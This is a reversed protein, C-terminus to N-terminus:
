SFPIDDDFSDMPPPPVYAGPDKRTPRHQPAAQQVPAQYIQEGSSESRSDLMQMDSLKISSPYHDVGANDQYKRTTFEGSIFVKSGKKLYQGCIEALKGFSEISIWETREQKQGTTKDKWTSGVAISFNCIQAGSQTYKVEPDKGLRGIFNCQNLDNSM